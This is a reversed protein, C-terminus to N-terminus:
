FNSTTIKQRRFNHERGAERISAPEPMGPIQFESTNHRSILTRCPEPLLRQGHILFPKQDCQRPMTEAERSTALIYLRSRIEAGNTLEQEIARM